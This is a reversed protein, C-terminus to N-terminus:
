CCFCFVEVTYVSYMTKAWEIAKTYKAQKLLPATMFLALHVSIHWTILFNTPQLIIKHDTIFFFFLSMLSLLRSPNSGPDEYLFGEFSSFRFPFYVTESKKNKM